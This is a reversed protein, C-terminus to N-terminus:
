WWGKTRMHKALICGPWIKATCTLLIKGEIKGIKGQRHAAVVLVGGVARGQWGLSDKVVGERVKRPFGLCSLPVQGEQRVAWVPVRALRVTRACWWVGGLGGRARGRAGCGVRVHWRMDARPSWTVEHVDLGSV